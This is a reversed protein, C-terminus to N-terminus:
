SIADKLEHEYLAILLMVGVGLGMGLVQLVLELYFHDAQPQPEESYPHSHGSSLEPVMDVLAVYLFIGTTASFIWSSLIEVSGLLIGIVMGMFALISSFHLIKTFKQSYLAIM